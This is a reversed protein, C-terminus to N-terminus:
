IVISININSPIDIIPPIMIAAKDSRNLVMIPPNPLHIGVIRPKTIDINM